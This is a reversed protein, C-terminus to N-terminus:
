RRRPTRKEALLELLREQEAILSAIKATERDLFASITSQETLPPFAWAFDRLFDDPVRKQGGAGYMSGEGESRFNPSRFLWSLFEADLKEPRSRAVILETTGFGIGNVLGKMLAGKGNEFCPTIKAIAVDGDRLYTYGSEVESIPRTRELSLGGDNGIADMPLFSVEMDRDLAAIESKSPNLTAMFRIRNVAWHNPADGLWRLGTPNHAPYRPLKM